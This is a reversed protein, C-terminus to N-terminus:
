INNPCCIRKPSKLRSIYIEARMFQLNVEAKETDVTDKASHKSLKIKALLKQMVKIVKEVRDEPDRTVSSLLELDSNFEEKSNHEGAKLKSLHKCHQRHTKKWHEEQCEKSCYFFIKCGGCRLTIKGEKQRWNYVECNTCWNELALSLMSTATAM